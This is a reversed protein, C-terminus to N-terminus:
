DIPRKSRSLRMSRPDSTASSFLRTAPSPQRGFTRGSPRGRATRPPYAVEEVDPPGMEPRMRWIRAGAPRLLGRPRQGRAQRAAPLDGARVREEVGVLERPLDLLAGRRRRSPSRRAVANDEVPMDWYSTRLLASHLPLPGLLWHSLDLLHMGQDLLEGGGSVEPRRAVRPRLRAPRRPRLPRAHVDARRARRDRRRSAGAHDRPPLPPQLRGEGRRAPPRRRPPSATSRTPRAGPRSRSWCTPAAPSRGPLGLEALADHTTAVVVVDPRHELVADLDPVARRAPRPPSCRPARPTPTAAGRRARDGGLAAARKRGMLGCGVIGVRLPEDRVGPRLLGPLRLRLAGRRRRRRGHAERLRARSPRTSSCSAAAAPASSSAASRGTRRPRARLARRGAGTTMGASRARKNLWHEHMLEGYATLDGAELLTRSELGIEKTRDLNAVMTADLERTRRDQDELIDTAKRTEGTFFLLFGDSMGQLTEASLRLPEVTVTDDQNFTYACIGGHAAVYQDQKGSPSASCTSRSTAPPRPSRRRADSSM